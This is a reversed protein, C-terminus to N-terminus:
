PGPRRRGGGHLRPRGPQRDGLDLRPHAIRVGDVRAVNEAQTAEIREVLVRVGRFEPREHVAGDVQEQFVAVRRGDVRRLAEPGGAARRQAVAKEARLDACEPPRPELPQGGPQDRQFALAHVDNTALLPV